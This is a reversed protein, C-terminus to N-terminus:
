MPIGGSSNAREISRLDGARAAFPVPNLRSKMKIERIAGRIRRANQGTFRDHPLLFFSLFHWPEGSPGIANRYLAATSWPGRANQLARSVISQFTAIPSTSSLTRWDHSASMLLLVFGIFVKLMAAYADEKPAPVYPREDASGFITQGFEFPQATQWTSNPQIAIIAPETTSPPIAVRKRSVQITNVAVQGNGSPIEGRLEVWVPGSARPRFTLYLDLDGAHLWKQAVAGRPDVIAANVANGASLSAPGRASITVAYM